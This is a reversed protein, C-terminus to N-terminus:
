GFAVKSIVSGILVAGAAANVLRRSGLWCCMKGALPRGWLLVAISAIYFGLYTANAYLHHIAPTPHQAIWDLGWGAPPLDPRPHPFAIWGSVVMGVMGIWTAGALVYGWARHVRQPITRLYLWALIPLAALLLAAVALKWAAHPGWWSAFRDVGMLVRHAVLLLVPLWTAAHDVAREIRQHSLVDGLWIFAALSMCIWEICSKM